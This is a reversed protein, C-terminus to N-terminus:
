WSSMSQRGFCRWVDVTPWIGNSPHATFGAFAGVAEPRPRRSGVLRDLLDCSRLALSLPDRTSVAQERGRESGQQVGDM